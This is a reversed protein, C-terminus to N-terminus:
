TGTAGPGRRAGGRGPGGERGAPTRGGCQPCISGCGCRRSTPMTDLWISAPQCAFSHPSGPIPYRRILASRLDAPGFQWNALYQSYERQAHLLVPALLPADLAWLEPSWLGPAVDYLAAWRAVLAACHPSAPNFSWFPAPVLRMAVDAADAVALFAADAELPTTLQLGSGGSRSPLALQAVLPNLRTAAPPPHEVLDLPALLVQREAAVIHPSLQPWPTIRTLHTLRAQLSSRLCLFKDQRALPLSPAFSILATATVMLRFAEVVAEPPGQLYVDDACAVV